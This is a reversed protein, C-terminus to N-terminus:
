MDSPIAHRHFLWRSGLSRRPRAPPGHRAPSGSLPSGPQSPAPLLM